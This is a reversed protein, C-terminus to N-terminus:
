SAYTVDEIMVTCPAVTSQHAKSCNCPLSRRVEVDAQAAESSAMSNCVAPVVRRKRLGFDRDDSSPPLVQLCDARMSNGLHLIISRRAAVGPCM